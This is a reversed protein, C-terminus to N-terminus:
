GMQLGYVSTPIGVHRAKLQLALFHSYFRSQQLNGGHFWLGQQRTPKWMNRQEGEWPGPDKTTASGVGWVKGVKDAVTKSVINAVFGDMSTYGTALVILNAPLETGNTLMVSREKIQAISVGSHLKIEGDMILQSAGVDIYYGSGRRLYKLYMGSGDDGFDLMFGAKSLGSYFKADRRRIEDFIATHLKPLVRHPISAVLMDAKTHDIGSEIAQESYLPALALENIIESRVVNSSSRQIMTVHADNEYLAACIDHSSNNSGVVICYKGSYKDSRRHASSHHIEGEFIDSGPITPINPLGSLGTAFVIQKPMLTVEEGERKVSVVWNGASEDFFMHSCITAGWYNLEMVKTYMELWDAIQDKPSYVPWHQPFPIYPLHDYWVPDHLCLSNYRSRWNDGPKEHKDVIITSVGLRKLRAGLAIGGQGGGIIVCYPQKTYGLEAEEKQKMDLWSKSHKFVGHRAGMPRNVGKKEEHGKLETMTTLLTYCLEGKLRIHGQGQSVGTEFSICAEVVGDETEIADETVRWSSPNVQRLTASLMDSIEKKGELTKINWTFSVIDRWYSEDAFMSVADDILNNALARGFRSLWDNVRSTLDLGM